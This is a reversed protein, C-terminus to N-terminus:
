CLVSYLSKLFEIIKTKSFFGNDIKQPVYARYNIQVIKLLRLFNKIDNM